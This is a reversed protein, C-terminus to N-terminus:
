IEFGDNDEGGVGEEKQKLKLNIRTLYSGQVTDEFHIGNIPNPVLGGHHVVDMDPNSAM